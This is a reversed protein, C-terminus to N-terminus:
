TTTSTASPRARSSRATSSGAPKPALGPRGVLEDRLAGVANGNPGDKDLSLPEAGVAIGVAAAAQKLPITQPRGTIGLDGKGAAVAGSSVVVVEYGRQRLDVIDRCLSEIRAPELGGDGSIVGSSSSACFRPQLNLGPLLM